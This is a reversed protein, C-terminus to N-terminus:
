VPAPARAARRRAGAPRARRERRDPPLARGPLGPRELMAQAVAMQEALAHRYEPAEEDSLLVWVQTAGQAIAALWLDIGVSATHWVGGAAGAGARRARQDTRAARGLADVRQAGAGESHILLAADRGGAAAYARLLTRLRQGQDVPGPYAFGIAGSPCVTSCAGCGVCLHPEVVIGGAAPCRRLRGTPGGRVKGPTKGKLSADSRIARASCVDICASCGIQENRSHACLKPQYNFFKPKEFEGVAERLELM